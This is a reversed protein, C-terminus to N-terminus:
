EDLKQDVRQMIAMLKERFAKEEDTQITIKEICAVAERAISHLETDKKKIQEYALDLQKRLDSVWFYFVVVAVGGGALAEFLPALEGQM